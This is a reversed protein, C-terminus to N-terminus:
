IKMIDDSFCRIIKSNNILIYVLIDDPYANMLEKDLHAVKTIIGFTKKHHNEHKKVFTVLDGAKFSFM